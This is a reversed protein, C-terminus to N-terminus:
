LPIRTKCFFAKTEAGSISTQIWIKFRIIQKSHVEIKVFKRSHTYKVFVYIWMFRYVQTDYM